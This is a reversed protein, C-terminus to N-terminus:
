GTKGLQNGDRKEQAILGDRIFRRIVQSVPSRDWAGLKQLRALEDMSVRVHVSSILKAV